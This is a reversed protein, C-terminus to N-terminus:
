NRWGHFPFKSDSFLITFLHVPYHSTVPVLTSNGATSSPATDSAKQSLILLLQTTLYAPLCRFLAFPAAQVLTHLFLQGYDERAKNAQRHLHTPLFSM